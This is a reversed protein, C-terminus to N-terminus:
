AYRVLDALTLSHLPRAALYAIQSDSVSATAPVTLWPRGAAKHTTYTSFYNVDRRLHWLRRYLPPRSVVLRASM